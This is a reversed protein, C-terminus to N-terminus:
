DIMGVRIRIAGPQPTDVMRYSKALKETLTRHFDEALKQIDTWENASSSSDTTWIEVPDLIIKDYSSWDTGARRYVLLPDDRRKGKELLPASTGFFSTPTVHRAQYSHACGALVLVSFFLRIRM